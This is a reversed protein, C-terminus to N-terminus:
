SYFLLNFRNDKRNFKKIEAEFFKLQQKCVFNNFISINEPKEKTLAKIFMFADFHGKVMMRDSLPKGKAKINKELLLRTDNETLSYDEIKTPNNVISIISFKEYDMADSLGM